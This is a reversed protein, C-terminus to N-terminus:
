EFGTLGAWIITIVRLGGIFFIVGVPINETRDTLFSSEIKWAGHQLAVTQQM